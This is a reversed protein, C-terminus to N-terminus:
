YYYYIIYLLLLLLLLNYYYYYYGLIGLMENPKVTGSVNNLIYRRNSHLTSRTLFTTSHTNIELYKSVNEFLINWGHQQHNQHYHHRRQHLRSGQQRFVPLIDSDNIKYEEM